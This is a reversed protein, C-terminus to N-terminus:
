GYFLPKRHQSHQCILPNGLGTNVHVVENGGEWGSSVVVIAKPKHNVIQQGVVQWSTYVLSEAEYEISPPGHAVFFVPMRDENVAKGLVTNAPAAADNYAQAPSLANKPPPHQLIQSQETLYPASQHMFFTRYWFERLKFSAESRSVPIQSPNVSYTYFCAGIAVGLTMWGFVM